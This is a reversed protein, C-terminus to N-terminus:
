RQLQKRREVTRELYELEKKVRVHEAKFTEDIRDRVVPYPTDAAFARARSAVGEVCRFALGKHSHEGM